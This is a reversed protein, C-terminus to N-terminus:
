LVLEFNSYNLTFSHKIETPDDQYSMSIEAFSSIWCNHYKFKIVKNKFEDLLYVTIPIMYINKDNLKVYARQSYESDKVIKNLKAMQDIWKYLTIYNSWDSSILYEFSVSKEGPQSINGPLKIQNGKFNIDISSIDISPISFTALNLQIDNIDDLITKLPIDAIWKNTTAFNLNLAESM